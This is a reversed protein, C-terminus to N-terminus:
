SSLYMPMIVHLFNDDGVSYLTGPHAPETIELAVQPSDMVSLIDILYKANFAITGGGGEVDAKIESSNDGLEQSSASLTLRGDESSVDVKVIGASDKAFLYAIRAAKLIDNTNLTARTAWEKPIIAEVDPYQGEMLQSTLDADEFHFLIQNHTIAVQVPEQQRSALKGLEALTSAPIIISEHPHTCTTMPITKISLRFGDTGTMTLTDPGFEARIGTLVPRSEETAAAIRVQSIAQELAGPELQIVADLDEGFTPISPFEDADVGKINAKFKGCRLKLTMTKIDLVIDVREKPLSNVFESLLGAPVTISGAEEIQAGIRTTIGMELDTGALKLIGDEASLLVNSLIPLTTRRAVARGVIKLGESLNEQLCSVKM